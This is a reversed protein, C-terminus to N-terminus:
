PAPMELYSVVVRKRTNSESIPLEPNIVPDKLYQIRTRRGFEGVLRKKKYIPFAEGLYFFPRKIKYGQIVIDAPDSIWKCNM